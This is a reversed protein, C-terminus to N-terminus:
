RHLNEALKHMVRTRAEALAFALAARGITRQFFVTAFGVAIAIGLLPLPHKVTAEVIGEELEAESWSFYEQSHETATAM